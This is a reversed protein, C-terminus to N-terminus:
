KEASRKRRRHGHVFHLALPVIVLLALLIWEELHRLDGLFTEIVAGFTYGALGIVCAWVAAGCLNLLTFRLPAIGASGILIPGAVRLGVMFRIGLILPTHYRTLLEDIRPAARALAPFRAKLRAGQHRGLQFFIQDGLASAVFAIGLVPWLGLMGRHAAFGATLLVTEGELLCGIAVAFYGYHSVLETVSM